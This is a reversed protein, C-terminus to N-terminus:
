SGICYRDALELESANLKRLDTIMPTSMPKCDVMGFIKLIEIAYKRQELFIKDTIM